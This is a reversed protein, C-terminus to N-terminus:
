VNLHTVAQKIFDPSYKAYVRETIATSKHGLLRSIQPMPVNKQALQTAVTHRLVHPTIETGLGAAKIVSDWSRKFSRVRSGSRHIVHSCSQPLALLLKRLADSMPVVGRGKRRHPLAITPDNFDILSTDFDIQAWRLSLIAEKRQGTMLAIMIFLEVEPRDKAATLLQQVQPASLFQSRPPPSPLRPLVPLFDIDGRKFSWRLGAQLIGIERNVTGPSAARTSIFKVSKKSVDRENCKFLPSLNNIAIKARNYSVTQELHQSYNDLITKITTMEDGFM